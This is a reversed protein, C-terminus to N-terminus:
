GSLQDANDINLEKAKERIRKKFEAVDESETNEEQVAKQIPGDVRDMIERISQIDERLGSGVLKLMLWEGVEKSEMQDSFPCIMEIEQKLINKLRTKLKTGRARGKPNGSQGKKWRHAMLAKESVPSNWKPKDKAKPKNEDMEPGM